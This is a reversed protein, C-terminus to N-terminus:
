SFPLPFLPYLVTRSAHGPSASAMSRPSADCHISSIGGPLTPGIGEPEALSTELFEAFGAGFIFRGQAAGVLMKVHLDRSLGRAQLISRDISSSEADPSDVRTRRSQPIPPPTARAFSSSVYVIPHSPPLGGISIFVSNTNGRCCLLDCVLGFRSRPDSSILHSDGLTERPRNVADRSAGRESTPNLNIQMIKHRAYTTSSPRLAKRTTSMSHAEVSLGGNRAFRRPRPIRHPSPVSVNRSCRRSGAPAGPRSSSGSRRQTRPRGGRHRACPELPLQRHLSDVGAGPLSRCHDIRRAPAPGPRSPLCRGDTLRAQAERKRAPDPLQWGHRYEVWGREDGPLWTGYTPWTLFYALPEPLPPECDRRRTSRMRSDRAQDM